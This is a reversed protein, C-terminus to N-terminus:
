VPSNLSDFRVALGSCGAAQCLLSSSDVQPARPVQHWIATRFLSLFSADPASRTNQCLITVNKGPRRRHPNGSITIGPRLSSQGPSENYYSFFGPIFQPSNFGIVSSTISGCHQFGPCLFCFIGLKYCPKSLPIARSMMFCRCPFSQLGCSYPNVPFSNRNKAFFAPLKNLIRFLPGPFAGLLWLGKTRHAIYPAIFRFHSLIWASYHTVGPGSSKKRPITQTSHAMYYIYHNIFVFELLSDDKTM